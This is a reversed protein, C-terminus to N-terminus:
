AKYHILRDGMLKYSTKTPSDILPAKIGDEISDQGTFVLAEDWCGSEIFQKLIDAGGEVILSQIGHHYLQDVIDSVNRSNGISRRINERMPGEVEENSFILKNAPTQWLKRNQPLEGSWGRIRPMSLAFLSNM